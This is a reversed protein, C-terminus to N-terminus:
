SQVDVRATMISVNIDPVRLGSLVLLKQPLTVRVQHGPHRHVVRTPQHGATHIVGDAVGVQALSLVPSRM